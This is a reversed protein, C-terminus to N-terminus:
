VHARGIEPPQLVTQPLQHSFSTNPFMSPGGVPTFGNGSSQQLISAGTAELNSTIRQIQAEDLQSNIRPQLPKNIGLVDDLNPILADLNTAQSLDMNEESKSEEGIKDSDTIVEEPSKVNEEPLNAKTANGDVSALRSSSPENNDNHGGDKDVDDDYPKIVVSSKTKVILSLGKRGSADKVPSWNSRFLM